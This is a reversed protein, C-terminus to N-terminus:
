QPVPPAFVGYAGGRIEDHRRPKAPPSFEYAIPWDHNRQYNEGDAERVIQEWSLQTFTVGAM